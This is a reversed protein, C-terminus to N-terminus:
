RMKASGRWVTGDADRGAGREAWGRLSAVVAAKVLM